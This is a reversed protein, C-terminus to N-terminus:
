CPGAVYKSASKLDILVCRGHASGIEPVLDSIENQGAEKKPRKLVNTSSLHDDM